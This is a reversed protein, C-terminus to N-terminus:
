RLEGKMEATWKAGRERNIIRSERSQKTGLSKKQEVRRSSATVGGKKQFWNLRRENQNRGDREFDSREKRERQGVAGM